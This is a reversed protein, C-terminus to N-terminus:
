ELDIKDTKRPKLNLRPPELMSDPYSGSFLDLSLFQIPGKMETFLHFLGSFSIMM